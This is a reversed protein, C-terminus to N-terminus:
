CWTLEEQFLVLELKERVQNLQTDDGHGQAVKELRELWRLLQDKRKTIHGFVESNWITVDKVFADASGTFSSGEALANAAMSQFSAHTLWAALFCFPKRGAPHHPHTLCVLISRHDSKRMRPLHHVAAEPLTAVWTNNALDRDLRERLGLRFWTYAPGTFGLDHLGIDNVCEQFDRTRSSNFPAGGLKETPSLISNFDGVLLWPDKLDQALSHLRAWLERRQVPAPNDYIASFICGEDQSSPHKVQM